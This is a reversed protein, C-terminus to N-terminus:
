KSVEGTCGRADAVVLKQKPLWVMEIKQVASPGNVTYRLQRTGVANGPWQSVTVRVPSTACPNTAPPLPMVVTVADSMEGEGVHNVASVAYYYTESNKVTLDLYQTAATVGVLAFEGTQKRYVRYETVADYPINADWAITASTSTMTPPQIVPPAPAQVFCLKDVYVNRDESANVADNTFLLKLRRLGSAISVTRLGFTIFDPSNIDTEGVLVDDLFVQLRPWTGGLPSGSATIDIRYTAANLMNVPGEATGIGNEGWLIIGPPYPGGATVTLIEAEVCTQAQLMLPFLLLFMLLKVM